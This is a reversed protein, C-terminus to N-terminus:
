CPRGVRCNETTTGAGAPTRIAPTQITPTQITPAPRATHGTSRGLAFAATLLVVVTIAMLGLRAVSTWSRAPRATPVTTVAM